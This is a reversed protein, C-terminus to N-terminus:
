GVPTLDIERTRDRERSRAKALDIKRVDGRGIGSQHVEDSELSAAGKSAIAEADEFRVMSRIVAYGDTREIDDQQREDRDIAASPSDSTARSEIVAGKTVQAGVSAPPPRLENADRILELEYRSDFRLGPINRQIGDDGFATEM